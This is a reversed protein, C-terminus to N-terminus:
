SKKWKELTSNALIGAKNSYVSFTVLYRRREIKRKISFLYVTSHSKYNMKINWLLSRTSTYNTSSRPVAKKGLPMLPIQMLSIVSNQFCIVMLMWTTCVRSGFVSSESDPSVTRKCSLSCKQTFFPFKWEKKELPQIQKM